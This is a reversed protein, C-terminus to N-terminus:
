PFLRKDVFVWQHGDWELKLRPNAAQAEDIWGGNIPRTFKMGKLLVPVVLQLVEIPIEAVAAIPQFQAAIKVMADAAGLGAAIEAQLTPANWAAALDLAAVEALSITKAINGALAVDGAPTATASKFYDLISSWISM